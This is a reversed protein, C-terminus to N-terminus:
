KVLETEAKSGMLLTIFLNHHICFLIYIYTYIISFSYIWHYNNEVYDMGLMKTQNSYLHKVLMNQQLDWCSHSITTYLILFPLSYGLFWTSARHESYQSSFRTISYEFFFFEIKLFDVLFKCKKLHLQKLSVMSNKFGITDFQRGILWILCVRPHSNIYLPWYGQWDHGM